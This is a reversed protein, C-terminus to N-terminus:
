ARPTSNALVAPATEHLGLALVVAVLAFGSLMWLPAQLGYNDAALGALFPSIEGGIIESVGM